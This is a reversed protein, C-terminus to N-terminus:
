RRRIPSRCMSRATRHRGRRPAGFVAPQGRGARRAPPDAFERRSGEADPGAPADDRRDRQRGARDVRRGPRAPGAARAADPKAAGDRGPGDADARSRCRPARRRRRRRAPRPARRASAPPRLRLRRRRRAACPRRRARGTMALRRPRRRLGPRATSRRSARGNWRRRGAGRPALRRSRPPALRRRAFLAASAQRLDRTGLAAPADVPHDEWDLWADARCLVVRVLRAAAAPDDRHVRRASGTATGVVQAPM